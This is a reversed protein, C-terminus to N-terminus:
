TCTGNEQLAPDAGAALAVALEGGTCVDVALGEETVWRVMETSLFAKGAYYIRAQTGHAAAAARFAALTRRAAQRVEDEDLVYLPTGFKERLTTVSIGGVQLVGHKNRQASDPWVSPVLSNADDPVALASRNESRTHPAASVPLVLRTPAEARRRGPWVPEAPAAAPHSM